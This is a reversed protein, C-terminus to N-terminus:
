GHTFILAAVRGNKLRHRSVVLKQCSRTVCGCVDNHMNFVGKKLSIFTRM